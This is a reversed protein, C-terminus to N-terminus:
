SRIKTYVSLSRAFYGARKIDSRPLRSQTWVTHYSLLETAFRVEASCKQNEAAKPCQKQTLLSGKRHYEDCLRSGSFAELPRLNDGVFTSVNARLGTHGRNVTQRRLHEDKTEPQLGARALEDGYEGVAARPEPLADIGDLFVDIVRVVSDEAIYDDLREPFLTAQHRDEGKIFGSM